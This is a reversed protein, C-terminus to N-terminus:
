AEEVTAGLRFNRLWVREQYVAEFADVDGDDGAAASPQARPHRPQVADLLFDLMAYDLSLPDAGRELTPPNANIREALYQAIAADDLDVTLTVTLRQVLPRGTTCPTRTETM